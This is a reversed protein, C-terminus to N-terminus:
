GSREWRGGRAAAGGENMIVDEGMPWRDADM